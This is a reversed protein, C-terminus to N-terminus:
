EKPIEIDLEQSGPHITFSLGSTKPDAYKEPIDIMAKLLPWEKEARERGETNPQKMPHPKRKVGKREEERLRKMAEYERRHFATSVTVRVTGVPVKGARYVGDEIEEAVARGREPHFIIIGIPVPKGGYTVRGSVKGVGGCGLPLSALAAALLGATRKSTM